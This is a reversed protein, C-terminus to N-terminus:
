ITYPPQLQTRELKAIMRSLILPSTATKFINAYKPLCLLGLHFAVYHPMVGTDVTNSLVFVINLSHNVVKIQFDYGTLGQCICHVM